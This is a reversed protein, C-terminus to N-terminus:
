TELAHYQVSEERNVFENHIFLSRCFCFCHSSSVDQVLTSNNFMYTYMAHSPLSVSVKQGNFELHRRYIRYVNWSLRVVMFM